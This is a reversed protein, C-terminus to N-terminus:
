GFIGDYADDLLLSAVRWVYWCRVEDLSSPDSELLRRTRDRDLARWLPQDDVSFLRERTEALVVPFPDPPAAADALPRPPRRVRARLEGRGREAVYSLRALRRSHWPELAKWTRGDAFPVGVLEPALIEVLRLHFTELTREAAPMGLQHPLLRHSWLASTTDQVPEVCGHGPGAWTGMRRLVYFADPIDIPAVGAALQDATWRDLDARLAERAARGIIERRGPRRAVFKRYLRRAVRRRGLGYQTRAIEGGQGSHWLVLPGPRPGLPYGPADALSATGSSLLGVIRAARDPDSLVNGGPSPPNWIRHPRGAVEALRRGVRVDPHDPHGATVVDFDLGGACGAALVLRSDRGGTVPLVNPREPWDCLATLAAVVLRSAVGADFGSGFLDGLRDAASLERRREGEPGLSLVVGPELRRVAAWLPHGTLSWGGGLLGALALPDVESGGHISRLAEANNAFWRTGRAETAFLPYAGTRDSFLELTRSPGDYRVAACRGDLAPAWDAAPALYHRPDLPVRGDAELEDVWRIPRGCFLALREQEAHVYRVGGVRDPEHAIWALAVGGDPAAWTEVAEREFFPLREVLGALAREAERVGVRGGDSWGLVFLNM